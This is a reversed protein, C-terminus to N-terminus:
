FVNLQTNFSNFETIGCENNGMNGMISWATTSVRHTNQYDLIQGNELM